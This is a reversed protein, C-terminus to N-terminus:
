DSTDLPHAVAQHGSHDGGRKDVADGFQDGGVGVAPMCPFTGHQQGEAGSGGAREAAVECVRAPTPTGTLPGVASACGAECILEFLLSRGAEQGAITDLPFPTAASSIGAARANVAADVFPILAESLVAYGHGSPHLGDDAFLARDHHFRAGALQDLPAYGVGHRAAATELVRSVQRARRGILQRLPQRFRPVAGIDPASILIISPAPPVELLLRLLADIDRRLDRLTTGHMADNGGVSILVLDPALGAVLPAQERLVDRARAGSRALNILTVRHAPALRAATAVAMGRGDASGRGAASSDGLVVFRLSPDEGTWTHPELVPDGTDEPRHRAALWGEAALLLVAAAAATAGARTTTTGRV